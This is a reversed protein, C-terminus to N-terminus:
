ALLTREVRLHRRNECNKSMTFSFKHQALLEGKARRESYLSAHITYNGAIYGRGNIDGDRDGFVMWPASNELGVFNRPGSLEMLASSAVPCDEKSQVEINFQFPEICEIEKLVNLPLNDDANFLIFELECENADISPKASPIATPWTVPSKTSAVPALTPSEVPSATVTSQDVVPVYSTIADVMDKYCRNAAENSMSSVYDTLDWMEYGDGDEGYYTDV